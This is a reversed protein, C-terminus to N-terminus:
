CLICIEKGMWHVVHNATDKVVLETCQVLIKVIGNAVTALKLSSDPFKTATMLLQTLWDLIGVLEHHDAIHSPEAALNHVQNKNQITSYEKTIFSNALICDRGYHVSYPKSRSHKWQRKSCALSDDNIMHYTICSFQQMITKVLNSCSAWSDCLSLFLVSKRQNFDHLSSCSQIFIDGSYAQLLRFVTPVRRNLGNSRQGHKKAHPEVKVKDLRHNYTLTTPWLDLDFLSFQKREGTQVLPASCTSTLVRSGLEALPLQSHSNGTWQFQRNTLLWPASQSCLRDILKLTFYHNCAHTTTQVKWYKTGMVSLMLEECELNESIILSRSLILSCLM